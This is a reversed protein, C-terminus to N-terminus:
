SRAISTARSRPTWTGISSPQGAGRADAVEPLASLMSAHQDFGDRVDGLAAPEVDDVPQRLGDGLPSPTKRSSRVLSALWLRDTNVIAPSCPRPRPPGRAARELDRDVLDVHVLVGALVRADPGDVDDREHREAVVVISSQM